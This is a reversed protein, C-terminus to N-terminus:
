EIDLDTVAIRARTKLSQYVKEHNISIKKVEAMMEEFPAKSKELHQSM